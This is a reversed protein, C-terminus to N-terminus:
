YCWRKNSIALAFQLTERDTWVIERTVTLKIDDSGHTRNTMHRDVAVITAVGNGRLVEKRLYTLHSLM